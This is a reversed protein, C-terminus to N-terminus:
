GRRSELHDRGAPFSALAGAAALGRTIVWGLLGGLLAGSAMMAGAYLAAYGLAWEQYYVRWEYPAELLGAAAGGLIAPLVTWRRYAFLLFGIEVGLGQLLGSGLTTVGWQGGLLAEVSAAIVEALLAAGPRRVVLAAVVAPVWFFGYILGQLPKLVAFLPDFLNTLLGWGVFVVGFAVAIMVTTILDITRWSRRARPPTGAPSSTTETEHIDSM